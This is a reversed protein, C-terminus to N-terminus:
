HKPSLIRTSCIAAAGGGDELEGSLGGLWCICSPFEPSQLQAWGLQATGAVVYIYVSLNGLESSKVRPFRLPHSYFLKGLMKLALTRKIFGSLLKLAFLIFNHM